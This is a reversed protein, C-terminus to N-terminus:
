HQGPGNVTFIGMKRTTVLLAATAGCVRILLLEYIQLCVVNRSDVEISLYLSWTKTSTLIIDCDIYLVFIIRTIFTIM